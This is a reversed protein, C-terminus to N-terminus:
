DKQMFNILKDLYNLSLNNNEFKSKLDMESKKIIQKIIENEDKLKNFNYEQINRKENIQQEVKKNLEENLNKETVCSQSWYSLKSELSELEDIQALYSKNLNDIKEKQSNIQDKLFDLDSQEKNINTKLSSYLYRKFLYYILYLVIFFNIFKFSIFLISEASM